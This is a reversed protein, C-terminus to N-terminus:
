RLLTIRQTVERGPYTLRAMYVGQAVRLGRDDNGDWVAVTSESSTRGSYLERVLHGRVDFLTLRADSDNPLSFRFETRGQTPNPTTAIVNMKDVTQPASALLPNWNYTVTTGRAVDTIIIQSYAFSLSVSPLSGGSSESTGVLYGDILDIRYVTMPMKAPADDVLELRFNSFSELNAQARFLPVTSRDFLAALTLESTQPAGSPQGSPGVPVTVGHQFSYLEIWNEHGGLTSSGLIAGQSDGTAQLVLHVTAFALGPLALLAVVLGLRFLSKTRYNM